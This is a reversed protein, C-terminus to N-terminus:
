LGKVEVAITESFSRGQVTVILCTFETGDIGTHEPSLPLTVSQGEGTSVSNGVATVVWNISSVELHTTCTINRSLGVLVPAEHGTIELALSSRSGCM